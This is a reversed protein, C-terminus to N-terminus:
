LPLGKEGVNEASIPILAFIDRTMFEIAYTLKQDQDEDTAQLELLVSGKALDEAAKVIFSRKAFKPKNDNVDKVVISVPLSSQLPPNGNDEAIVQLLTM